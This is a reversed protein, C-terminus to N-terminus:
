RNGDMFVQRDQGLKKKHNLLVGVAGVGEVTGPDLQVPHQGVGGGRRVCVRVCGCVAAEYGRKRSMFVCQEMGHFPTHAQSSPTWFHIAPRNNNNIAPQEPDM